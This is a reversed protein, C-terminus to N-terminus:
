GGRLSHAITRLLDVDPATDATEVPARVILRGDDILDAILIKTLALPLRLQASVEAVSQPHRCLGIIDIYEPETRRPAFGAGADIVRTDLTLDARASRGRGRTVAYLRVVPGADEEDWPDHPANM